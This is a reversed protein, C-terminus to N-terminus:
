ASLPRRPKDYFCDKNVWSGNPLLLAHPHDSFQLCADSQCLQVPKTVGELWIPHITRRLHLYRPGCWSPTDRARDYKGVPTHVIGDAGLVVDWGNYRTGLRSVMFPYDAGALVMVDIDRARDYDRVASGGIAVPTGPFKHDFFAFTRALEPHMPTSASHRRGQPDGSSEYHMTVGKFVLTKSPM